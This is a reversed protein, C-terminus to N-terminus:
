NDKIDPVQCEIPTPYRADLQACRYASMDLVPIREMGLHSQATFLAFFYQGNLCIDIADKSKPSFKKRFYQLLCMHNGDHLYSRLKSENSKCLSLM